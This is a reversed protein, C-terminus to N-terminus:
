WLYAQPLHYEEVVYKTRQETAIIIIDNGREKLYIGLAYRSAAIIRKRIAELNLHLL